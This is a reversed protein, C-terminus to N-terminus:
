LRNNKEEMVKRFKDDIYDHLIGTYVSTTFVWDTEKFKKNNKKALEKQEEKHKKLIEIITDNLELTRYSNTKLDKFAKISRVTVIKEMKYGQITEKVEYVKIM